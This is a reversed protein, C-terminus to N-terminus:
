GPGDPRVGEWFDRLLRAFDRPREVASIHAAEISALRAPVISRAIELSMALPTADDLSGAIVLTPVRIGQNSQRFDIGAVAECSAVYADADNSLLTERLTSADAAGQATAAYAPTLWRAIAGEAISVMCRLPTTRWRM